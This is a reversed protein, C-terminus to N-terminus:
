SEKKGRFHVPQALKAAKVKVNSAYDGFDARHGSETIKAFNAQKSPCRESGVGNHQRSPKSSEQKAKPEFHM